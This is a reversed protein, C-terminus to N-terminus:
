QLEEQIDKLLKCVEYSEDETLERLDCEIKWKLEGLMEDTSASDIRHVYEHVVRERANEQLDTDWEPYSSFGNVLWWKFRKTM